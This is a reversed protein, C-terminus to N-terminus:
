YLGLKASCVPWAGWGQRAQLIQARAIQEERSAQNPYGSGGVAAWSSLTFQLGGYFGNGTNIAWNGGSECQAISDWVSGGAPASVVARPAPQPAASDESSPVTAPPSVPAAAPATPLPRNPLQEDAAPIRVQQGPYIIDPDAIQENAAYVRVYTSQHDVAIGDLTDGPQVAVKVAPKAQPAKVTKVTAKPKETKTLPHSAPIGPIVLNTAVVLAAM